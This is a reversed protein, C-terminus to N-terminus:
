ELSITQVGGSQVEVIGGAVTDYVQQGVFFNLGLLDHIISEPTDVAGLEAQLQATMIQANLILDDIAM